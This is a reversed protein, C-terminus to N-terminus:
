SVGGLDLTTPDAPIAHLAHARQLYDAVLATVEARTQLEREILYRRGRGTAPIDTLRVVGLIRQGQILRDGAALTYRALTVPPNTTATSM